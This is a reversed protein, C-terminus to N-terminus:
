PMGPGLKEFLSSLAPEYKKWRQVSRTYLPQRVQMVSATRVPRKTEHFALCRPDWEQGCWAVLKRAVTELDAVTDEYSVELLPVPLVARWHEMIRLYQQFRDAMHEKNSAWRIHRFNTMWCSVAVDRLDRRCHIFQAQPFLVSLWGLYLYNDPMKDVVRAATANLEDLRELHRRAAQQLVAGDIRGLCEVPKDNSGLMAPLSEFGERAFRLEGAGHIQPHSALIQEVLTTGSRPLGVIFVPRPSDHGLGKLRDFFAPTCTAILADMFAHHAQPDYIDGRKRWAILSLHNAKELNEAAEAFQGKSDLVQALGFHIVAREGEVLEPDDLMRRLTVLDEEPLKSRLMTALQSQAGVLTPDHKLATRFCTEAGTFDSLEELLGGLNCHAPAFDPRARLATRFEAEAEPYRGLEQYVFGLGNHAEAYNPDLRLALDYRAIADDHREQEELASALNSHIRASHPELELAKQYWQLADDLKGEEQLAQAMNNYVMGLRPNLRLAETYSAKAEDLRGLERLANGLNSHAEPFNPRLRIAERCHAVAPTLEKRECLAQGLNSHAEVLNPDYELARRFCAIADDMKNQERFANGLNNHALAFDPKLKIAEEFQVIAGPIDGQSLLALGLNNVAEPYSPRLRLATRCCDVARAFQGLARYVEALNAHFSPVAPALAIARGILDAAPQHHGLQHAVVGLLHLADPNNPQRALIAEYMRGAQELNGLQHERIANSLQIDMAADVDEGVRDASGRSWLRLSTLSQHNPVSFVLPVFRSGRSGAAFSGKASVLNIYPDSAFQGSIRCSQQM